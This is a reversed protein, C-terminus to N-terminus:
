KFIDFTFGLRVNIGRINHWGIGVLYKDTQYNIGAQYAFRGNSTDNASAVYGGVGLFASTRTDGIPLYGLVDVGTSTSETRGLEIGWYTDKVGVAASIDTSETSRGGSIYVAPAACVATAILMIAFLIVIAKKM